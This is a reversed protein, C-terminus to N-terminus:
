PPPIEAYVAIPGSLSRDRALGPSAVYATWNAGDSSCYVLFDGRPDLPGDSVNSPRYVLNSCDQVNHSGLVRDIAPSRQEVWPGPYLDDPSPECGALFASLAVCALAGLNRAAARHVSELM